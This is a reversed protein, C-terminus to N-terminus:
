DIKECCVYPNNYRLFVYNMACLIEKYYKKCDIKFIMLTSRAFFLMRFKLACCSFLFEREIKELWHQSRRESEGAYAGLSVGANGKEIKFLTPRSIMAREAMLSTPIRRRKRANKIDAGFKRLARKIPIPLPM